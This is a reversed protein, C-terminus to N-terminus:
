ISKTVWFEKQSKGTYWIVGAGDQGWVAAAGQQQWDQGTTPMIEPPV